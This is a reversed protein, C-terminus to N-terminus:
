YWGGEIREIKKLMREIRDKIIKIKRKLGRNEEKISRFEEPDPRKAGGEVVRLLQIVKKELLDLEEDM